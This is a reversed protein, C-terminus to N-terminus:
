HVGLMKQTLWGHIGVIITNQIIRMLVQKRVYVNMIPPPPTSYQPGYVFWTSRNQAM